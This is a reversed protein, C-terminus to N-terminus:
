FSAIVDFYLGSYNNAPTEVDVLPFRFAANDARLVPQTTALGASFGIRETYQFSLDLAATVTDAARAAGAQAQPSTLEDDPSAYRWGGSYQLQFTTNWREHFFWTLAGWASLSWNILYAGGGCAAEDSCHRSRLDGGEYDEQDFVPAPRVYFHKTALFRVQPLFAGAPRQLRVGLTTAGIKDVQRSEYSLPVFLRAEAGAVVGTNRERWLAPAVLWFMPDAYDFRRGTANDPDTFEYQLDQRLYLVAGGPIEDIRLSPRLSLSEAVFPDDSSTSSVFTGFGVTTDAIVLGGWRSGGDDEEVLLGTTAPSQARAGGAALAIVLAVAFPRM